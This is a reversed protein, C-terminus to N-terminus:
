GEAKRRRRVGVVAGILAVIGGVYVGYHMGAVAMFRRGWTEAMIENWGIGDAIPGAFIWALIGAALECAVAFALALLAFKALAGLTLQPYIDSPNNALVLAVGGLLGVTWTAQLALLAVDPFYGDRAGILGKGVIYYEPSIAYTVADHLLGFLMCALTIGAIFGYEQLRPSRRGHKRIDLVLLVAFFALGVTIRIALTPVDIM